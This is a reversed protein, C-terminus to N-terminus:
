MTAHFTDGLSINSNIYVCVGGGNRNRDRRQLSYGPIQVESDPVSDTLWTETIGIVSAKSKIAIHRLEDLKPLLSRTNILLFHLGKSHLREFENDDDDNSRSSFYSDSLIPLQCVYYYWNTDTSSLTVYQDKTIHMADPLCKLHTWVNCQYCQLGDRNKTVPKHCVSCPYKWNRPGPNLSM